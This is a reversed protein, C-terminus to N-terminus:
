FKTAYCDPFPLALMNRFVRCLFIDCSALNEQMPCEEGPRQQGNTPPLRSAAVSAPTPASITTIENLVIEDSEENDSISTHKLVTNIEDEDDDAEDDMIDERYITTTPDEKEVYLDYIQFGNM